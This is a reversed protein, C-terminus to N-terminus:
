PRGSTPRPGAPADLRPQDDRTLVYIRNKGASKARYLARDAAAQLAQPTDHGDQLAAVGISLGPDSAAPRTPQRRRSLEQRFLGILRRGVM